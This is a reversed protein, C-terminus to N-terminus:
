GRRYRVGRADLWAELHARPGRPSGRRYRMEYTRRSTAVQLKHSGQVAVSRIAAAPITARWGAARLVLADPTLVAEGKGRKTLPGDGSGDSLRLFPWHRHPLPGGPGLARREAGRLAVVRAWTRLPRIGSGNWELHSGDYLTGTRSCHLCFVSGDRRGRVADPYGCSPCRWVLRGVDMSSRIRLSPPSPHDALVEVLWREMSPERMPRIPRDWALRVSTRRPGRGWRPWLRYSEIISIAVIPSRALSLFRAVGPLVAAPGGDWSREGEPFIGIVGGAELVRVAERLATPDPRHRRLHICGLGKLFLRSWRPRFAEEATLFAIPRPFAAALLFADLYSRHSAVVVLPGTGPITSSAPHRLDCWLRFLSRVLGRVALYLPPAAPPRTAARMRRLDPLFPTTARWDLATRGFTALLRPEEVLLAFAVWGILLAPVVFLAGSTSGFLGIWGLFYLTIGWYYPHRSLHYPGTTHLQPADPSPRTARERAPAEGPTIGRLQRQLQAWRALLAGFLGVAVFAPRIVGPLPAARTVTDLLLSLRVIGYPIAAWCFLIRGVSAVVPHM